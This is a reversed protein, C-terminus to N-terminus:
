LATIKYMIWIGKQGQTEPQDLVILYRKGQYQVTIKVEPLGQQNNYPTPTPQPPPSPSIVTVHGASFGFNQPLQKKIVQFPNLYYMDAPNGADAARQTAQSQGAPYAFSGTKVGPTAATAQPKATSTPAPKPTATPGPRPTGTPGPKPTGTPGPKPTSTPKPPATATPLLTATATPLATPTSTPKPKGSSHHTAVYAGVVIAALVLVLVLPLLWKKNDPGPDRITTQSM